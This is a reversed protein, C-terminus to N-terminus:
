CKTLNSLSVALKFEMLPPANTVKDYFQHQQWTEGEDISYLLTNSGGESRFNEVAVMVGGHDAM